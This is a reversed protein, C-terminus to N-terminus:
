TFSFLLSLKSAANLLEQPLFDQLNQRFALGHPVFLIADSGNRLGIILSSGYIEVVM